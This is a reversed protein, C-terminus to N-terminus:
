SPFVQFNFPASRLFFYPFGIRRPRIFKLNSFLVLSFFFFFSFFFLVCMCVTQYPPCIFLSVAPRTGWSGDFHGGNSPSCPLLLANEGDPKQRERLRRVYRVIFTPPFPIFLIIKVSRALHCPPWRNGWWATMATRGGSTRESGAGGRSRGKAGQGGEECTMSRSPGVLLLVRRRYIHIPFTILAPSFLPRRSPIVIVSYSSPTM